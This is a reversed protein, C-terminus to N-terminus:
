LFQRETAQQESIPPNSRRGFIPPQQIQHGYLLATGFAIAVLVAATLLGDQLGSGHELTGSTVGAGPEITRINVPVELSVAEGDGTKAIGSIVGNLTARPKGPIGPVTLRGWLWNKDSDSENRSPVPITTQFNSEEDQLRAFLVSREFRTGSAGKLLEIQIQDGPVGVLGLSDGGEPVAIYGDTLFFPIGLANLGIGLPFATCIAGITAVFLAVTIIGLRGVFGKIGERPERKQRTEPWTAVAM